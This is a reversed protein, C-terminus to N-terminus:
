LEEPEIMAWVTKGTSSPSNGWARSLGAVIELGTVMRTSTREPLTALRHSGDDVSITVWRGTCEVCLSPTGDTHMLTNRVLERVIARGRSVLHPHAWELLCEAVFDKAEVVSLSSRLLEVRARRRVRAKAYLGVADAAAETEPHIPVYRGIGSRVLVDRRESGSCALLVPVDPWRTVQWRASTFVACASPAPISLSTVDVVVAAPIDLAAKIISDRLTTYTTSDLVGHVSLVVVPGLAGKAVHLPSQHGVTM